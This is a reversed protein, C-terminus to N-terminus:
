ILINPTSVDFNGFRGTFSVNTIDEAGEFIFTYVLGGVLVVTHGDPHSVRHSRYESSSNRDNSDTAIFTKGALSSPYLNNFAFRHFNMDFPCEAADLGDPSVYSSSITCGAPPNGDTPLLKTPTNTGSLSGDMDKIVGEHMWRYKIRYQVNEYKMSSLRNTYGGCLESCTGDIKTYMMAVADVADFNIFKINHAEMPDGYPWIFGAKTVGKSNQNVTNSAQGVILTDNVTPSLSSNDVPANLSRKGEFGALVNQVFRAGTIIVSGYNVFEAGKENNWATFNEIYAPAASTPNCSGDLGPYYEQFIWLGFWGFSHATNFQFKLIPVRQPCVSETFSPGDPHDHMRYWFGFHTGGVATNHIYTNNPNTVWYSAPTIDDNLLSSSARVFCVLNYQFTNGTEIGDELFLAGGMVNYVVNSEILINHSGHVNIARNFTEHIACGKVYSQSMDGNLHFHIPYRGLRFAQGAFTVELYSIHGVVVQTDKEPAHFIIQGGFQSSGKEEGFRGEFCTQTVFEGTCYYLSFM